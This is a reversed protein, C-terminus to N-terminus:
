RRKGGRPAPRKAGGPRSTSPRSTGSRSGAASRTPRGGGSPGAGRAPRDTRAPGAGRAPRDTRAPGAGRAPRDSRAPGARNPGRAKGDFAPGGPGRAIRQEGDRGGGRIPRDPRDPGAPGRGAGAPGRSPGRRGGTPGRADRAPGRSPGRANRDDRAVGRGAGRGGGAPARSDRSPGSRSPGRSDRTSPGRSDRAPAGRAPGRDNDGPRRGSRAAELQREFVTEDEDDEEDARGRRDQDLERDPVFGDDDPPAAAQAAALRALHERRARDTDERQARWTGRSGASRDLGVLDRLDNVEQQTLERADGVRLGHFTLGAFSVRQLKQVQHGLAEVMRHIQRSKGEYLTIVLWDHRSQGGHLVDVEAPLTVTGDDLTVGTRMRELDGPSLQGRIKVHYTKAVHGRPGLLRAALDGDNTLLLVGESYYDLRGVPAVNVPLNPLYDMVTLRGRDDTVATICGKPKNFLIYFHEQPAVPEGDVQVNAHAPDVKTGLTRVVEGDVTVRGALILEEAKRRAAIGSQAIYRQLRVQKAAAPAKSM